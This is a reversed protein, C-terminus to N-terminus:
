VTASVPRLDGHQQIITDNYDEEQKLKHLSGWNEGYEGESRMPCDFLDQDMALRLMRMEERWIETPASANIEDHVTAMFVTDPDRYEEWWDNIVQKAQDGASGQILYNLLKYDFSRMSGNIIKPPETFYYRGGWTRIAEGSAGRAQTSRALAKAAPMARGYAERLTHAEHRPRGLQQALGPVGSGYIISFGTIKVDKRAYQFGTMEEILLRAMDHPDLWPNNIYSELLLGDEFHALIRIEQSSFDRKIWTHGEEPLLYSRM